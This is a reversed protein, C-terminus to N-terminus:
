VIPKNIKDIYNELELKDKSYNYKDIKLIIKDNKICIQKEPLTNIRYHKNKKYKFKRGHFTAVFVDFKKSYDLENYIYNILVGESIRKSKNMKELKETLSKRLYDFFLKHKLKDLNFIRDEDVNYSCKLIYFFDEIENNNSINYGKKNSKFMNKIWHYAYIPDEYLYFGDGLWHRDGKSFIIKETELIKKGRKHNCGHYHIKKM